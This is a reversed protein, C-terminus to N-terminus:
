EGEWDAYRLDSANQMGSNIRAHLYKRGDFFRRAEPEIRDWSLFVMADSNWFPLTIHAGRDDIKEVRVLSRWLTEESKHLGYMTPGDPALVKGDIKRDRSLERLRDRVRMIEGMTVPGSAIGRAIDQPLLVKETWNGDKLILSRMAEIVMKNTFGVLM